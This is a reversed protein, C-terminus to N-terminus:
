APPKSIKRSMSAGSEGGGLHRVGSAEEQAGQKCYCCPQDRKLFVFASVSGLLRDAEPQRPLCATGPANCEARM